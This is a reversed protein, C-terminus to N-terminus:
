HDNLVEFALSYELLRDPVEVAGGQLAAVLARVEHPMRRVDGDPADPALVPVRADQDPGLLPQLGERVDAFFELHPRKVLWIREMLQVSQVLPHGEAAQLPGEIRVGRQEYVVFFVQAVVDPRVTGRDLVFRHPISQSVRASYQRERGSSGLSNLACVRERSSSQGSSPERMM